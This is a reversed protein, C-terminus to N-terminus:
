RRRTGAFFEQMLFSELGANDRPRASLTVDRGLRQSVWVFDGETNDRIIAIMRRVVAIEISANAGQEVEVLQETHREIDKSWGFFAFEAHDFGLRRIEFIGGVRNEGFAPGRDLGLNAAVVQDFRDREGPRPAAPAIPPSPAAEGRARRQAAIYSSLDGAAAPPAPERPAPEPRQPARETSPKRSAIVPPSPKPQPPAAEAPPRAEGVPPSPLPAPVPPAAPRPAARPVLQLQLRGSPPEGRAPDLSLLTLDPLWPWMLAAHLLLSVAFAVWITPISVRDPDTRIDSVLESM